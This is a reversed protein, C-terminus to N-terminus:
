YLAVGSMCLLTQQPRIWTEAELREEPMVEVMNLHTLQPLLYIVFARLTNAPAPLLKAADSRLTDFYHADASPAHPFGDQARNQGVTLGEPANENPIGSGSLLEGLIMLRADRLPVDVHFGDNDPRPLRRTDRFAAISESLTSDSTLVLEKLLLFPVLKCLTGLRTLRNGHMLLTQLLPNQTANLTFGDDSIRNHALSLFRLRPCCELGRCSTLQNHAVALHYLSPLTVNDFDLRSLGNRSIDLVELFELSRIAPPLEELENEELHLRLLGPAFGLAPLERLGNNGLRLTTLLPAVPLAAWDVQAAGLGCGRLDLELLCPLSLVAALEDRTIPQGALSVCEVRPHDSCLNSIPLGAGAVARAGCGVGDAAPGFDGLRRRREVYDNM